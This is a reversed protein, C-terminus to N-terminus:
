PAEAGIQEPCTCGGSDAAVEGLAVARPLFWARERFPQCEEYFPSFDCENPLGGWVVLGEDIWVLASYASRDPGCHTPLSAWEDKQADYIAGTTVHGEERAGGWVIMKRGVAVASHGTRGAPAGETTVPEWVDRDPYYRAGSQPLEPGEDYGGWVIAETGTWVMSASERPSPAGENTMATWTNSAADYRAGSGLVRFEGDVYTSGGWLLAGGETSASTETSADYGPPTEQWETWPSRIVFYRLGGFVNDDISSRGVLIADNMGLLPQTWVNGSGQEPLGSWVDATTDYRFTFANGLSERRQSAFPDGAASVVGSLEERSAGENSMVSFRDPPEYVLKPTLGFGFANNSLVFLRGNVWVAFRGDPRGRLEAPIGIELWSAECEAAEHDDETLQRSSCGLMVLASVVFSTPFAASVRAPFM